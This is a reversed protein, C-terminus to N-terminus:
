SDVKEFEQGLGSRSFLGQHIKAAMIPPYRTIWSCASLVILLAWLRCM